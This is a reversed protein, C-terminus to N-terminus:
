AAARASEVLLRDRESDYAFSARLQEAQLRQIKERAESLMAECDRMEKHAAEIASKRVETEAAHKRELAEIPSLQEKAM